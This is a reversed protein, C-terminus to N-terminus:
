PDFIGREGQPMTVLRHFHSRERRCLFWPALSKETLRINDAERSYSNRGIEGAGARNKKRVM